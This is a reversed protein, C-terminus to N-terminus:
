HNEYKQNSKRAAALPWNAENAATSIRTACLGRPGTSGKWDQGWGRHYLTSIAVGM